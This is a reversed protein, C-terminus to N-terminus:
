RVADYSSVYTHYVDDTIALSNCAQQQEKKREGVEKMESIHIKM